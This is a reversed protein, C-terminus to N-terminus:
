KRKSPGVILCGLGEERDGYSVIFVNEGRFFSEEASEAHVVGGTFYAKYVAALSDMRLRELM